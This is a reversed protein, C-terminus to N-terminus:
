YSTGHSVVDPGILTRRGVARPRESRYFLKGLMDVGLVGALVLAIVPGVCRGAPLRTAIPSTAVLVVFFLLM